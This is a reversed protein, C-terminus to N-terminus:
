RDETPDCSRCVRADAKECVLSAPRHSDRRQAAARSGRGRRRRSCSRRTPEPPQARGAGGGSGLSHVAPGAVRGRCRAHRRAGAAMGVTRAAAGGEGGRLRRVGDEPGPDAEPTAAGNADVDVPARPRGPRLRRTTGRWRGAVARAASGCPSPRAGRGRARCSGRRPRGRRRRAVPRSAEGHVGDGRARLDRAPDDGERHAAPLHDAPAVDHTAPQEVCEAGVDDRRRHPEGVVRGEGADPGTVEDVHQGRAGRVAAAGGVGLDHGGPTRTRVTPGTVPEPFPPRSPEDPPVDAGTSSSAVVGACLRAM